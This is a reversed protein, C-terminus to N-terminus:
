IAPASEDRAVVRAYDAAGTRARYFPQSERLNAWNPVVAPVALKRRRASTKAKVVFSADGTDLEQTAFEPCPTPPQGQVPPPCYPGRQLFVTVRHRGVCWGRAPPTLQVRILEGGTGSGISPPQPVACFPPSKVPKSVQVRYETAFVGQHGPAERLTFQVAFATHPRGRAPRVQPHTQEKSPVGLPGTPGRTTHAPLATVTGGAVATGSGQPDIGQDQGLTIAAGAGSGIAVVIVAAFRLARVPWTYGRCGAGLAPSEKSTAAPLYGARNM